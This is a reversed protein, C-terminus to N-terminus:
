APRSIALGAIVLLFSLSCVIRQRRSWNDWGRQLKSGVMIGAVGVIFAIMGLLAM